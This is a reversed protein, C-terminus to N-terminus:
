YTLKNPVLKMRRRPRFLGLSRSNSCRQGEKCEEDDAESICGIQLINFYFKGLVDALPQQTSKLCSLFIQDCTCHSRSLLLFDIIQMADSPKWGPFTPQLTPSNGPFSVACRISILPFDIRSSTASSMNCDIFGSLPLLDVLSRGRSYFLLLAFIGDEGYTDPM